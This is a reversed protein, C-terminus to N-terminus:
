AQLLAKVPAHLMGVEKSNVQKGGTLSSLKKLFDKGPSLEPGIFITDIKTKFTKAVRLTEREDNPEGDSILIFKIGTDDAIKVFELAAKMDTSGDLRPPVGNPCFQPWSSFAIVGIKGPLEGQLRALEKEAAQYRSLGAPADKNGMSGSMDCILLVDVDLFSEALTIGKQQSVQQLSGPVIALQTQKKM